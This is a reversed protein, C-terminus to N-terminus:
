KIFYNVIQIIVIMMRIPTLCLLKKNQSDSKNVNSINLGTQFIKSNENQQIKKLKNIIKNKLNLHGSSQCHM